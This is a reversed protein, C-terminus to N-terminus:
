SRSDETQQKDAAKDIRDALSFYTFMMLPLTWLLLLLGVTLLSLLIPGLFSRMYAGCARRHQKMAMRSARLAARTRKGRCVYYPLLFWDATIRMWLVSLAIAAALLPVYLWFSWFSALTYVGAFLAVIVLPRLLICIGAALCDGYRLRPMRTPAALGETATEYGRYAVRYLACVAPATGLLVLVLIALFYWPIAGQPMDVEGLFVTALNAAFTIPSIVAFTLLIGVGVMRVRNGKTALHAAAVAKIQKLAIM